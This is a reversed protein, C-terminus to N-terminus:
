REVRKELIPYGEVEKGFLENDMIYVVSQMNASGVWM